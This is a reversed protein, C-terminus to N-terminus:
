AITTYTVFEMLAFVVNEEANCGLVWLLTVSGM